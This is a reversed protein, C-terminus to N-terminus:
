ARSEQLKRWGYPTLGQPKYVNLVPVMLLVVLGGASHLLTSPLTRLEASSTTPEAAVHALDSITQREVLLLNVPVTSDVPILEVPSVNEGDHVRAVNIELIELTLLHETANCHGALRVVFWDALLTREDESVVNRLPM